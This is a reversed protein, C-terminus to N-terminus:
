RGERYEIVRVAVYAVLFALAVFGAFSGLIALTELYSHQQTLIHPDTNPM